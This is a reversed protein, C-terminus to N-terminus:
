SQLFSNIDLLVLILLFLCKKARLSPTFSGKPVSKLHIVSSSVVTMITMTNALPFPTAFSPRGLNVFSFHSDGVDQWHMHM